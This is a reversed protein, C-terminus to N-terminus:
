YRYLDLKALNNINEEIGMIEAYKGRIKKRIAQVEASDTQTGM